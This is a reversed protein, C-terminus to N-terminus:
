DADEIAANIRLVTLKHEELLRRVAPNGLVPMELTQDANRLTFYYVDVRRYGAYFFTEVAAMPDLSWGTRLYRVLVDAPAYTQSSPSWHRYNEEDFNQANTATSASHAEMLGEM